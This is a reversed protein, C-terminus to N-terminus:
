KSSELNLIWNAVKVAQEANFQNTPSSYSGDRFRMVEIGDADCCSLAKDCVEVVDKKNKLIQERKTRKKEDIKGGPNDIATVNKEISVSPKLIGIKANHEEITEEPKHKSLFAKARDKRQDNNMVQYCGAIFFPCESCPLSKPVICSGNQDYIIESYEIQKELETSM